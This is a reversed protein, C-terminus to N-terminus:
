QYALKASTKPPFFVFSPFPFIYPSFPCSDPTRFFSCSSDELLPFKFSFPSIGNNPTETKHAKPGCIALVAVM